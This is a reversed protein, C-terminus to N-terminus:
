LTMDEKRHSLKSSLKALTIKSISKVKVPSLGLIEGIQKSDHRDNGNLGFRLVLVQKEIPKLIYMNDKIRQLIEDLKYDFIYPNALIEDTDVGKSNFYTITAYNDISLNLNEPTQEYISNESNINELLINKEEKKLATSTLIYLSLEKQTPRNEHTIKEITTNEM